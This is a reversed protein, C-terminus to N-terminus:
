IRVIIFAKWHDPLGEKIWICNMLRYIESQLIEGGAQILAPPIQDVQRNISKWSQLLLKLRLLVQNLYYRSLQAYKYRGLM